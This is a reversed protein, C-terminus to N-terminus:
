QAIEMKKVHTSEDETNFWLVLYGCDETYCNSFDGKANWLPTIDEGYESRALDLLFEKNLELSNNVLGM